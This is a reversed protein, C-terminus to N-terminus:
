EVGAAKLAAIAVGLGYPDVGTARKANQCWEKIDVLADVLAPAAAILRANADGCFGTMDTTGPIRISHYSDHGDRPVGYFGPEM